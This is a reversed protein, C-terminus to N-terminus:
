KLQTKAVRRYPRCFRESTVKWSDNCFVCQYFHGSIQLGSLNCAPCLSRKYLWDRYSDLCDQIHDEDIEIGMDKGIIKAKEWAEIEMKVLEFDSYYKKHQQSAHGTEHLLSWLSESTDSEASYHVSMDSPSWFFRSDQVFQIEPFRKKLKPIICDIMMSSVCYTVVM